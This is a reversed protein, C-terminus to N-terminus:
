KLLGTGFEAMAVFHYKDEPDDSGGETQPLAATLEVKVGYGKYSKSLYIYQRTGKDRRLYFEKGDEIYIWDNLKPDPTPKVYLTFTKAGVNDHPTRQSLYVYNFELEEGGGYTFAFWHPYILATNQWSTHWYSEVVGDILFRVDGYVGDTISNDCTGTWRAREYITDHLPIEKPISRGAPTWSTEAPQKSPDSTSWFNEVPPFNKMHQQAYMSVKFDWADFFASLDANAYESAYMAYLDNKYRDPVSDPMEERCRQSCYAYLGWGYQQLLQLVMSERDAEVPLLYRKTPDKSKTMTIGLNNWMGKRQYFHYTYTKRLFNKLLSGTNWTMDYLGIFGDLVLKHSKGKLEPLGIISEGMSDATTSNFGMPYAPYMLSVQGGADRPLQVDSYIRWPMPVDADSLGALPNLDKEIMEDYFKLMADPRDIKRLTNLPLTLITRQGILEGWIMPSITDGVIAKWQAVNDDQLYDPMKAVGSITLTQDSPTGDFYFYLPGGFNSSVRNEGAQLLGSKTVNEYRQYKDGSPLHLDAVGIQYYLNNAGGSVVITIEEAPPVYLGTGQWYKPKAAMKLDKPQYNGSIKVEVDKLRPINNEVEGPYKGVWAWQENPPLGEAGPNPNTPIFSPDEKLMDKSCSMMLLVGLVIGIKRYLNNM